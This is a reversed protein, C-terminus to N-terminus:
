GDRPSLIHPLIMHNSFLKKCRSCYNLTEPSAIQETLLIQHIKKIQPDPAYTQGCGKCRTIVVEHIKKKRIFSFFLRISIEHRLVAATEPCTSVCGGCCICQYHSYFFRQKNGIECAELAGSPCSITCSSCGVCRSSLLRTRIFLFVAMVIMVEGSFVHLYWMYDELFSFLVPTGNVYWYGTIFPLTTIMIMIIDVPSSQKRIEPFFLRRVIFFFGIGILVLTATDIYHDEIPEWYWGLSTDMLMNLHGSYFVPIIFLCAHFLYRLITYVPQKILDRHFPLFSAGLLYLARGTKDWVFSPCFIKQSKLITIWFALCRIGMGIGFVYFVIELFQGEIFYLWEEPM